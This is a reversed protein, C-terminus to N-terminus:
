QMASIPLLVWYELGLVLPLISLFQYRFQLFTVVNIIRAQWTETAVVGMACPRPSEIVVCISELALDNFLTVICNDAVGKSTGYRGVPLIKV